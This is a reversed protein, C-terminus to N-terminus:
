GAFGGSISQGNFTIDSIVLSNGSLLKSYAIWISKTENPAFFADGTNATSTLWMRYTNVNGATSVLQIQEPSTLNSINANTKFEISWGYIYSAASANAIKMYIDGQYSGPSGWQNYGEFSASVASSIYPKRINASGNFSTSAPASNLSVRFRLKQGAPINFYDSSYAGQVPRLTSGSVVLGNWSGSPMLRCGSMKGFFGSLNSDLQMVWGDNIAKGSNNAIEFYYYNGSDPTVSYTYSGSPETGGGSDGGSGGHSCQTGTVTVSFITTNQNHANQTDVADSVEGNKWYAKVKYTRTSAVNALFAKEVTFSTEGKRIVTDGMHTGDEAYIDIHLGDIPQKGEPSGVNITVTLDMDVETTIDNQFNVISFPLEASETPALKVSMIATETKGIYFQKAITSGEATEITTQYMAMTGALLSVSIAFILITTLLAKKM